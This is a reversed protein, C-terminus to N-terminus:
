KVMKLFRDSNAIWKRIYKANLNGDAYRKGLYPGHSLEKGDKKIIISETLDKPEFCTVKIWTAEPPTMEKRVLTLDGVDEQCALVAKSLSDIYRMAIRPSKGYSSDVYYREWFFLAFVLFMILVIYKVLGKLTSNRACFAIRRYFLLAACISVVLSIIVMAFNATDITGTWNLLSVSYLILFGEFIMIGIAMLCLIIDFKLSKREGVSFGKENKEM